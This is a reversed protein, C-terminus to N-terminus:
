EPHRIAKFINLTKVSVVVMSIIVGNRVNNM